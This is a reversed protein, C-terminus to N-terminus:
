KEYLDYMDMARRNELTKTGKNSTHMPKDLPTSLTSVDRQYKIHSEAASIVDNICYKLVHGNLARVQSIYDNGLNKVHQFYISRMIVRIVKPDQPGVIIGTRTRVEKQITNQILTINEQSFYMDSLPNREQQGNLADTFNGNFKASPNQLMFQFTHAPAIINVRGNTTVNNNVPATRFSVEPNSYSSSNHAVERNYKYPM